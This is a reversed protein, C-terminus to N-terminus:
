KLVLIAKEGNDLLINRMEMLFEDSHGKGDINRGINQVHNNIHERLLHFSERQNEEKRESNKGSNGKVNGEHRYQGKRTNM